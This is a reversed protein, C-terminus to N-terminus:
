KKSLAWCHELVERVGQLTAGSCTIPSDLQLENAINSLTSERDEQLLLDVKNLVV